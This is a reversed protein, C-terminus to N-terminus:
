GDDGAKRTSYTTRVHREVTFVKFCHDCDMDYVYRDTHNFWEPKLHLFGCHPCEAGEDPNLLHFELAADLWRVVLWTGGPPPYGPYAADWEAVGHLKERLVKKLM